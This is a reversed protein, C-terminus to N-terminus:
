SILPAVERKEGEPNQGGVTAPIHYNVANPILLEPKACVLEEHRELSFVRGFGLFLFCFVSLSWLSCVFRLMM